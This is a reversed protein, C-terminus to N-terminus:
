ENLVLSCKTKRAHRPQLKLESFAFLAGQHGGGYATKLAILASIALTWLIHTFDDMIEDFVRSLTQGIQPKEELESRNQKM